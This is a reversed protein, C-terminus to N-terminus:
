PQEETGYSTTKVLIESLASRRFSDEKNYHESVLTQVREVNLINGDTKRIRLYKTSNKAIYYHNNGLHRIQILDLEKLVFLFQKLTHRDLEFGLINLYEELEKLLLGHMMFILSHIMLMQERHQAKEFKRDQRAKTFALINQHM